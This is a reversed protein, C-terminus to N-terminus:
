SSGILGNCFKLKGHQRRKDAEGELKAKGNANAFQLSAPSESTSEIQSSIQNSDSHQSKSCKNCKSCRAAEPQIKGNGNGNSTENAPQQQQQKAQARGSGPSSAQTNNNSCFACNAASRKPGSSPAPKSANIMKILTSSQLEPSHQSRSATSKPQQKALLKLEDVFCLRQNPRLESGTRAQQPGMKREITREFESDRAPPPPPCPPSAKRRVEPPRSATQVAPRSNNARTPNSDNGSPKTISKLKLKSDYSPEYDSLTDLSSDPSYNLSEDSTSSALLPPTSIPSTEDSAAKRYEHARLNNSNTNNNNINNNNNHIGMFTSLHRNPKVQSCPKSRLLRNAALDVGCTDSDLQNGSYACRILRENPMFPQRTHHNARKARINTKDLHASCDSARCGVTALTALAERQQRSNLKLTSQQKGNPALRTQLMRNDNNALQSSERALCISCDLLSNPNRYASTCCNLKRSMQALAALEYPCEYDHQVYGYHTDSLTECGSKPHKLTKSDLQYNLRTYAHRNKKMASGILHASTTLNLRDVSKAKSLRMPASPAPYNNANTNINHPEITNCTFASPRHYVQQIMENRSTPGRVLQRSKNCCAPKVTAMLADQQIVPGNCRSVAIQRTPAMLRTQQQSAVVILSNRRSYAAAYAYMPEHSERGLQCSTLRNSTALNDVSLHRQIMPSNHRNM